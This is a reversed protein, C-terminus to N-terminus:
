LIKKEKYSMVFGLYIAVGYLVISSPRLRDLMAHAIFSLEAHRSDGPILENAENNYNTILVYLFNALFCGCFAFFGGMLGFKLGYSNGKVKHVVKGVLYGIGPLLYGTRYAVLLVLAVWCVAGFLAAVAAGILALLVNGEEKTDSTESLQESFESNPEGM